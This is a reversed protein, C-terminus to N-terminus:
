SPKTDKYEPFATFTNTSDASTDSEDAAAATAPTVLEETTPVHGPVGEPIETSAQSPTIGPSTDSRAVTTDPSPSSVAAVQGSSTSFAAGTTDAHDGPPSDGTVRRVPRIRTIKGGSAPGSGNATQGLKVGVIPATAREVFSLVKTSFPASSSSSGSGARATRIDSISATAREILPTVKGSIPTTLKSGSSSTTVVTTSEPSAATGSAQGSRAKVNGMLKGRLEAGTQPANWLAAAAGIVGGLVSGVVFAANHRQAAM